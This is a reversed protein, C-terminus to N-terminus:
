HQDRLRRRAGAAFLYLSPSSVAVCGEKPKLNGDWGKPEKGPQYILHRDEEHERVVKRPGSFTCGAQSCSVVLPQQQERPKPARSQPQQQQQRPPAAPRAARSSSSSSSPAPGSYTSSLTYGDATTQAQSAAYHNPASPPPFPQQLHHHAPPYHQAYSTPPPPHGAYAHQPPPGSPTGYGYPLAQAHQHAYHPQPPYAQPHGLHPQGLQHPHHAPASWAAPPAAVPYAHQPAGPHYSAGGLAGHIAAGLASPPPAGHPQPPAPPARASPRSILPASRRPQNNGPPYSM